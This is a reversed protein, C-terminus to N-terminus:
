LEYKHNIEILNNMKMSSLFFFKLPYNIILNEFQFADWTPELRKRIEM